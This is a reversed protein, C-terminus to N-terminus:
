RLHCPFMIVGANIKLVSSFNQIFSIKVVPYSGDLKVLFPGLKVMFVPPKKFIFLAFVETFDLNEGVLSFSRCVPRVLDLPGRSQASRLPVSVSGASRTQIRKM